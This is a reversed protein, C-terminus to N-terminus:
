GVYWVISILILSCSGPTRHLQLSFAWAQFAFTHMSKTAKTVNVAVAATAYGVIAVVVVTKKKKNPKTKYLKAHEVDVRIDDYWRPAIVFACNWRSLCQCQMRMGYLRICWLLASAAHYTMQQEISSHGCNLMPADSCRHMTHQTWQRENKKRENKQRKGWTFDQELARDQRCVFEM